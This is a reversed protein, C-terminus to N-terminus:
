YWEAGTILEDGGDGGFALARGSVLVVGKGAAGRYGVPLNLLVDHHHDVDISSQVPSSSMAVM